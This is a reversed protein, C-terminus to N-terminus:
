RSKPVAKGKVAAPPPAQQILDLVRSGLAAWDKCQLGSCRDATDLAKSVRLVYKTARSAAYRPLDLMPIVWAREITSADASLLVLIACAYRDSRFTAKRIEFHVVNGRESSGRKKLAVTRSKVQAPLARGTVKDYILLDIGDDDAVPWFASLRGGSSIMLVNAVHSVAIAGIQTSSPGAM